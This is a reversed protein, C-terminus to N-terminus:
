MERSTKSAIQLSFLIKLISILKTRLTGQSKHFEARLCSGASIGALM